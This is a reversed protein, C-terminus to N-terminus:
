SYIFDFKSESEPRTKAIQSIRQTEVSLFRVFLAIKEGKPPSSVRFFMFFCLFHYKRDSVVWAFRYVFNSTIRFYKVESNRSILTSKPFYRWFDCLFYRCFVGRCAVQTGMMGWIRDVAGGLGLSCYKPM